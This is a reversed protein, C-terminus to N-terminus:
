KVTIGKGHATEGIVWVPQNLEQARKLFASLKEQPVGLL